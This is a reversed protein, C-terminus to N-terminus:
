SFRLQQKSRSTFVEALELELIGPKYTLWEAM